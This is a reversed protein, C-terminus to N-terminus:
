WLESFDCSGDSTVEACGDPHKMLPAGQWASLLFETIQERAADGAPTGRAAFGHVDYKGTDPVRFQELAAGEHLEGSTHELGVIESLSPDFQIAGYSAALIETGINPLIPDGMSEQMLYVDGEEMALDAWSTGDVDDWAGQGIMVVLNTDIVDDYAIEMYPGIFKYLDSEPFMHTWASGPVNLVAYRVRESSGSIVAGMTGGLSGGAWPIMETDPYRGAAPNEKGGLTTAALTEGLPGELAVILAELDTTSQLLGATSRASGSLFSGFGGFTPILDDASWGAFRFGLKAIGAESLVDDFSDDTFDGGTGHGFLVVRYDGEGAPVCVRFLAEHTGQELPLSDADLALQGLEDRFYPIDKLRGEVILAIDPQPALTVEDVVIEGAGRAQVLADMSRKRRRPDEASRTTFDWVRLVDAPDIREVQLLYRTPAHYAFISEEQENEPAVLGLALETSRERVLAAGSDDVWGDLLVAVHDSAAPLANLPRGLILTEPFNVGEGDVLEVRLPIERGYLGGDPQAVFLRLAEPPATAPDIRASLATAVGTIRSFGDATNLFTADDDPKMSSPDVALRLGTETTPDAVTFVNSPWPLLCRTPDSEDCAASLPAREGIERLLITDSCGLLALLWLM